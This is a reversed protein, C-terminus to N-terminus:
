FPPFGVALDYFEYGLDDTFNPFYIDSVLEHCLRL